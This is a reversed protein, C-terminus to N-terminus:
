RPAANWSAQWPSSSSATTVADGLAHHTLARPPPRTRHRCVGTVGGPRPRPRRGVRPPRPSRHRAHPNSFPLYSRRFAKRLFSREIWACHAVVPTAASSVTSPPSATRWRPRATSTKAGCGMSNSPAAQSTGGPCTCWGTYRNPPGSGATASPYQATLSSIVTVRTSAPPRWTSSSSPTREGTWRPTRRDGLDARASGSPWHTAM